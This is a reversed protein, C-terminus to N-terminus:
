SPDPPNGDPFESGVYPNYLDGGTSRQYANWSARRCAEESTGYSASRRWNGNSDLWERYCDGGDRVARHRASAPYRVNPMDDNNVELTAGTEGVKRNRMQLVSDGPKRTGHTSCGGGEQGTNPDICVPTPVTPRNHSYFPRCVHVGYPNAATYEVDCVVAPEPQDSPAGQLVDIIEGGQYDGGCHTARESVKVSIQAWYGSYRARCTTTAEGGPGDANASDPTLLLVAGGLLAVAALMAFTLARYNM